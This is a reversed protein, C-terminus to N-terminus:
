VTYTTQLNSVIKQSQEQGQPAHIEPYSIFKMLKAQVRDLIPVRTTDRVQWIVEDAKESKYM